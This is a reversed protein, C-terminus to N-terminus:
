QRAVALPTESASRQKEILVHKFFSPNVFFTSAQTHPPSVHPVSEYQAGFSAAPELHKSWNAAAGIAFQVHVSPVFALLLGQKQPGSLSLSVQGDPLKQLALTCSLVSLHVAFGNQVFV